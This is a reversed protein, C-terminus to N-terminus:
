SKEAAQTIHAIEKEETEVYLSSLWLLIMSIPAAILMAVLVGIQLSDADTYNFMRMIDSIQGMVYPGMALGILTGALQNFAIATARMHPPSLESAMALSSPIWIMGVFIGVTAYFYAMHIETASMGLYYLPISLVSLMGVYIRAKVTYKKLFDSILGGLLISLFGSCLVIIGMMAGVDQPDASFRRLLYPTFWFGIGYVTFGIMSFGLVSYRMAKAQFIVAYCPTDMIKLRQLWSTFAYLGLAISVWQEPNGLLGTLVWASIALDFAYFMNRLMLSKGGLRYLSYFTFPPIVAALEQLFFRFAHPDQQRIEVGDMEGRKPERLFFIFVSLLLGPVGVLFMSLQWDAIGFPANGDPFWRHYAALTAGGVAFGAGSGIFVGTSWVGYVTARMKKTFSDALMSLSAPAAASEGIGVGVRYLALQFFSTATGSLATMLSWLFVGAGILKKRNWHDALRALPIGFISFFVAFATGYLFGLSADGIRLGAKIEEALISLITRDIFNLIYTVTLIFLVYYAYPKAKQAIKLTM